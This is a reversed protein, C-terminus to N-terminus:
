KAMNVSLRAPARLTVTVAHAQEGLQPHRFVVDHRGIPLRLNGLPTEGMRRGDITVDAWPTANVHLTGQPPAIAVSATRGPSVPVTRDEEYGLAENVLRIDHRGASMMVRETATTGVLRGSELIQLEIPSEIAVWGSLPAGKSVLPVVLSATGGADVTVQRDISGVESQLVVAHVGPVLGEITIPSVGRADGDVLVRAGPPDSEIHLRGTGPAPQFEVYQSFREGPAVTVPIERVEDGQRVEIRHAGAALEITLPAIGKPVGDISIGAGAPKTSVTVRGTAPAAAAPASTRLTMAAVGAVAVITLAALSFITGLRRRPSAPPPTGASVASLERNWEYVDKDRDPRAAPAARLQSM